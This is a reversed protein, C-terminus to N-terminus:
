IGMKLFTNGFSLRTICDDSARENLIHSAKIHHYLYDLKRRSVHANKALKLLHFILQFLDNSPM